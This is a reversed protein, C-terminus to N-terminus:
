ESLKINGSELESLKKKLYQLEKIASKWELYDDWKSFDENKSEKVEKEFSKFNKQYKQEFLRIEEELSHIKYLLDAKLFGKVIRKDVIM